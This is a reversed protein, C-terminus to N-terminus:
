VKREIPGPSLDYESKPLWYENCGTPNEVNWAAVSEGIVQWKKGKKDNRYQVWRTESM